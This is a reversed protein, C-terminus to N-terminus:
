AQRATRIRPSAGAMRGASMSAMAGTIRAACCRCPRPRGEIFQTATGDNNIKIEIM